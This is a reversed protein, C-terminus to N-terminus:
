TKSRWPDSSTGLESNVASVFSTIVIVRLRDTVDGVLDAQGQSQAFAGVFSQAFATFEFAAVANPFLEGPASHRLIVKLARRLQEVTFHQNLAEERFKGLSGEDFEDIRGMHAIMALMEVYRHARGSSTIERECKLFYDRSSPNEMFESLPIRGWSDKDFPPPFPLRDVLSPIM